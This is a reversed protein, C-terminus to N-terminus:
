FYFVIKTGNIRPVTFSRPLWNKCCVGMFSKNGHVSYGLFDVLNEYNGQEINSTATLENLTVSVELIEGSKVEEDDLDKKVLVRVRRGYIICFKKSSGNLIVKFGVDNTEVLQGIWFLICITSVVQQALKVMKRLYGAKFKNEGVHGAQKSSNFISTHIRNALWLRLKSVVM